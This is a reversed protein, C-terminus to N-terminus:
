ESSSPRRTRPRPNGARPGKAKLRKVQRDREVDKQRSTPSPRPPKVGATQCLDSIEKHNLEIWQGVRVHSPIFINGYRVRKLRSVKVGQSEWLRRVERNRGEMVVCYFWRNSGEGSGDVIDTFKAMGDELLVGDRLRQKMDNDVDGQIRVLYERDIMSSPHMLKNALEGDNTFLLLGSTNYDLRGVSIWRESKLEPLSEYVTRRGEPDSRSCIEGEPKNYLIVRLETKNPEQLRIRRGDVTVKDTVTVRDGLQAVQGNVHVRGAAIAREMERRSGVGERALVKQLKEDKQM